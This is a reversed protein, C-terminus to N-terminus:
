KNAQFPIITNFADYSKEPDVADEDYAIFIVQNALIPEYGKVQEMLIKNLKEAEQRFADENDQNVALPSLYYVKMAYAGQYYALDISYVKYDKGEMTLNMPFEYHDQVLGALANAQETIVLGDQHEILQSLNILNYAHRMSFFAMLYNGQDKLDEAQDQWALIDKGEIKYNTVYMKALKWTQDKVYNMTILNTHVGAPIEYFLTMSDLGDTSFTCKYGSEDKLYLSTFESRESKAVHHILTKKGAVHDKVALMSNVIDEVSENVVGPYIEKKLGERDGKQILQFIEQSKDEFDKVELSQNEKKNCSILALGMMLILLIKKM